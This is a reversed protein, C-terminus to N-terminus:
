KSAQLRPCRRQGPARLGERHSTQKMAPEASMEWLPLKIYGGAPSKSHTACAECSGRSLTAFRMLAQCKSLMGLPCLNGNWDCLGVAPGLLRCPPMSVSSDDETIVLARGSGAARFPEAGKLLGEWKHTQFAGRVETTGVAKRGATEQCLLLKATTQGFGAHVGIDDDWSIGKSRAEQM